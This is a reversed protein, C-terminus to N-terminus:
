SFQPPPRFGGIVDTVVAAVALLDEDAFRRAVLQVGIPLNAPIRISGTMDSGIDFVSLGAAVAAGSGGSSGGVTRALDWPNNTRGFIPNDTQASFLLPPVNTKGLLVGGAAHLRATLPDASPM